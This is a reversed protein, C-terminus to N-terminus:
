ATPEDDFYKNPAPPWEDARSGVSLFVADSSGINTYRYPVGAPFVFLDFPELVYRGDPLEFEVRGEVPAILHDASGSHKPSTQGRGILVYHARLSTATVGTYSARSSGPTRGGPLNWDPRMDAWKLLSTV